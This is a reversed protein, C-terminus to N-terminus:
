RVVTLIQKSRSIPRLSSTAAIIRERAHPPDSLAVDEAGECVVLVTEVGRGLM